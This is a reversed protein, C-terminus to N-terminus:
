CRHNDPRFPWAQSPAPLQRDRLHWATWYRNLSNYLLLCYITVLWPGAFPIALQRFIPHPHNDWPSM